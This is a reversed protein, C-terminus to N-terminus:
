SRDRLGLFDDLEGLSVVPQDLDPALPAGTRVRRVRTVRSMSTEATRSVLDLFVVDDRLPRGSEAPPLAALVAPAHSSLIVQRVAAGTGDMTWTRIRRVFRALLQPYIGNEPEELCLLGSAEPDRLAVVLALARLTGDSAVTAAYEAQGRTQVVVSRVRRVRDDDLRLGIVDPVVSSLDSAIDSLVGEPRDERKTRRVLRALANPLHRGSPSLEDEDDYSDSTQLASPELALVRWQAIERRLRKVLADVSSHPTEVADSQGGVTWTTLIVAPRLAHPAPYLTSSTDDGAADAAPTYAVEVWRVEDLSPSSRAVFLREHTVVLSQTGQPDLPDESRVGLRLEYRVGDALEDHPALEVAFSIESVRRGSSDRHMLESLDGRSERVAQMVSAGQALRSLFAIADFLNSKGAANQGLVVLFPPVDLTFDKFTKFGDIEVRTLV